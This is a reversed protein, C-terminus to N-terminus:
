YCGAALKPHNKSSKSNALGFGSIFAKFHIKELTREEQIEIDLVGPLSAHSTEIWRTLEYGTFEVQIELIVKPKSLSLVLSCDLCAGPFYQKKKNLIIIRFHNVVSM